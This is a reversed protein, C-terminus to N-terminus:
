EAKSVKLGLDISWGIKKKNDCIAQRVEGAILARRNQVV